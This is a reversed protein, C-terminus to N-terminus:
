VCMRRRSDFGPGISTRPPSITLIAAPGFKITMTVYYNFLSLFRCQGFKAPLITMKDYNFLSLFRYQGYKAPLITMINYSFLSLFRCQGYKAPLITMIDYNFLSLFRCQGYKAFNTTILRKQNELRAAERHINRSKPPFVPPM